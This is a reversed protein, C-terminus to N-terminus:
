QGTTTQAFNSVPSCQSHLGPPEKSRLHSLTVYLVATKNTYNTMIIHQLVRIILSTNTIHITISQNSCMALTWIHCGQPSVAFCHLPM